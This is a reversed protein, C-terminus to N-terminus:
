FCKNIFNPSYNRLERDLNIAEPLIKQLEKWFNKSHNKIKTHVLEHLIVYDILEDKLFALNSNLSINNQSSCSGWITKQRRLNVNKIQFQYKQALEHCRKLLYQNKELFQTKTLQKPANKVNEDRVKQKTALKILSNEVWIVKSKFFDQARKFSVRQPYTVKVQLDGGISICINKARKSKIFIIPNFKENLEECHLLHNKQDNPKLIKQLM